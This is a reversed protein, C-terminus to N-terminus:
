LMIRGLRRPCVRSCTGGRLSSFRPESGRLQLPLLQVLQTRSRGTRKQTQLRPSHAPREALPQYQRLITPGAFSLPSSRADTADALCAAYPHGLKLLVVLGIRLSSSAVRSYSISTNTSAISSALPTPPPTALKRVPYVTYLPSFNGNSATAYPRMPPWFTLGVRVGSDIFRSSSRRTSRSSNVARSWRFSTSPSIVTLM